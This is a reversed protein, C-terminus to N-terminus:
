LSSILSHLYSAWNWAWIKGFVGRCCRSLKSFLFDLVRTQFNLSVEWLRQPMPLQLRTTWSLKRYQCIIMSDLCTEIMIQQRRSFFIQAPTRLIDMNWWWSPEQLCIILVHEAELCTYVYEYWRGILPRRRDPRFDRRWRHYLWLITESWLGSKLNAGHGKFRIRYLAYSPSRSTCRNIFWHHTQFMFLVLHHRSFSISM